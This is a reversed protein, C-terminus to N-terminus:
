ASEIVLFHKVVHKDIKVSLDRLFRSAALGRTFDLEVLNGHAIENRTDRHKSFTDEESETLPVGLAWKAVHPIQSARLDLYNKLEMIGFSSFLESPFRFDTTELTKIHKRYSPALSRKPYGRLKRASSDTVPAACSAAHHETRKVAVQVFADHGGHFTLIEELLAKFYGEFYSFSSIFVLRGLTKKYATAFARLQTFDPAGKLSRRGTAQYGRRKGCGEHLGETRTSIPLVPCRLRVPAPEARQAALLEQFTFDVSEGCQQTWLKAQM